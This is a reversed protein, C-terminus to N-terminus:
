DDCDPHIEEIREMARQLTLTQWNHMERLKQIDAKIQDLPDDPVDHNIKKNKAM